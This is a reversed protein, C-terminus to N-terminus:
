GPEAFEDACGGFPDVGAEDVDLLEFRAVGDAAAVAAEHVGDGRGVGGVPMVIMATRVRLTSPSGVPARIARDHGASTARMRPATTASPTHATREGLRQSQGLGAVWRMAAPSRVVRRGWGWGWRGRRLSLSRAREILVM